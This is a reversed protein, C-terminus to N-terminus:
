FRQSLSRKMVVFDGEVTPLCLDIQEICISRILTGPSIVDSVAPFEGSASLYYSDFISATKNKM